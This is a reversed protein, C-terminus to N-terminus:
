EMRQFRARLQDFPFMAAARLGAVTSLNGITRRTETILEEVIIREAVEGEERVLSLRHM